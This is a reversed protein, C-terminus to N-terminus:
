VLTKKTGSFSKFINSPYLYLNNKGQGYKCNHNPIM